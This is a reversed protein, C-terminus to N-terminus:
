AAFIGVGSMVEEVIPVAVDEVLRATDEEVVNGKVVEEEVVVAIGM